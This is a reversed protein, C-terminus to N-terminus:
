AGGNGPEPADPGTDGRITTEYVVDKAYEMHVTFRRRELNVYTRALRLEAESYEPTDLAYQNNTAM